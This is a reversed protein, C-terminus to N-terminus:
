AGFDFLRSACAQSHCVLRGSRERGRADSVDDFTYGCACTARWCHGCVPGPWQQCHFRADDLSEIAAEHWQCPCAPPSDSGSGDSGSAYGGEGCSAHAVLDQHSARVAGWTLPYGYADCVCTGPEAERDGHPRWTEAMHSPTPVDGGLDTIGGDEGYTVQYATALASDCVM